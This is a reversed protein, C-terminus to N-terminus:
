RRFRLVDIFVNPFDGREGSLMGFVVLSYVLSESARLDAGSDTERKEDVPEM